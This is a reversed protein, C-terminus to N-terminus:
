HKPAQPTSLRAFQEMTIPKCYGSYNLLPDAPKEIPDWRGNRYNLFVFNWKYGDLVPIIGTENQLTGREWAVPAFAGTKMERLVRTFHCEQCTRGERMILHSFAPAFVVMTKNQYVFTHLNALTVKGNRNNVLFLMNKLPLSVSKKEQVKTDFHCNYCSSVERVHCAVCDVKGKHVANSPCRSLDAHCSECRADMAGAAQMSDYSIGDGHIERASHCDVCNMGRAYHVDASKDGPNQRAFTLGQIDHCKACAAESRATALSYVPKGQVEKVHCTDCSRVHCGDCSLKSFPIGTISELGGHDKSYWYELGRNTYHLSKEYVSRGDRTGEQAPMQLAFGSLVLALCFGTTPMIKNM